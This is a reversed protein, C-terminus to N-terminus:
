SRLSATPDPPVGDGSSANNVIERTRALSLLGLHDILISGGICILVVGGSVEAWKGFAAGPFRVLLMGTTAMIITAFGIMLVTAVINVNLFALGIGVAMADFSTAIATTVLLLFVHRRPAEAEEDTTNSLGDKMMRMGPAFLLVFAIWHDQRM